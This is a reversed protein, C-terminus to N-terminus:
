PRLNTAAPPGDRVMPASTEIALRRLIATRILEQRIDELAVGSAPFAAAIHAAEFGAMFVEDASAAAVAARIERLIAPFEPLQRTGSSRRSFPFLPIINASM